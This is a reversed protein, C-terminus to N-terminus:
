NKNNQESCHFFLTVILKVYGLQCIILLQVQLKKHKKKVWLELAGNWSRTIAIAFSEGDETNIGIVIKNLTLNSDPSIPNGFNNICEIECTKINSFIQSHKIAVHKLSAEMNEDTKSTLISVLLLEIGRLDKDLKTLVSKLARRVVNQQPGIVEVHTARSTPKTRFLMKFKLDSADKNYSGDNIKSAQLSFKPKCRLAQLLITQLRDLWDQTGIKGMMGFIQGVKVAGHRQVRQLRLNIEEVELECKLDGVIDSVEVTRLVRANTCTKRGNPKPKGEHFFQQTKALAQTLQTANTLAEDELVVFNIKVKVVRESYEVIAVTEDTSLLSQVIKGMKEKCM